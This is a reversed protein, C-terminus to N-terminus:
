RNEIQGQDNETYVGGFSGVPAGTKADRLQGYMDKKYRNSSLHTSMNDGPKPDSHNKM